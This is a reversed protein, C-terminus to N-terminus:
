RIASLSTVRNRSDPSEGFMNSAAERRSSALAFSSRSSSRKFRVERRAGVDPIMTVGRISSRTPWSKVRPESSQTMASEPDTTASTATGSDSADRTWGPWRTANFSLGYGVRIKRPVIARGPDWTRRSSFSLKTMASTWTSFASPSRFVPMCPFGFIEVSRAGIANAIRRSGTRQAQFLIQGIRGQAAQGTGGLEDGRSAGLFAGLRQGRTVARGLDTGAEALVEDNAPLDREASDEQEDLVRLLARAVVERAAVPVGEF